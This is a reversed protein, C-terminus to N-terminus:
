SVEGVRRPWSLAPWAGVRDRLPEAAEAVDAGGQRDLPHLLAGVRPSAIPDEVLDLGGHLPQPPLTHDDAQGQGGGALVHVLDEGILGDVEEEALHAGEVGEDEVERDRHGGHCDHGKGDGHSRNTRGTSSLFQRTRLPIKMPVRSHSTGERLWAAAHPDHENYYASM